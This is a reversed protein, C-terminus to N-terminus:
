IEAMHPSIALTVVFSCRVRYKAMKFPLLRKPAAMPGAKLKNRLSNLKLMPSHCISKRVEGPNKMPM